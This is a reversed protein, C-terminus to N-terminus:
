ASKKDCRLHIETSLTNVETLSDSKVSSLQDNYKNLKAQSLHLHCTCLPCFFQSTSIKKSPYLDLSSIGIHFYTGLFFVPNLYTSSKERGSYNNYHIFNMNHSVSITKLIASIWISAPTPISVQAFSLSSSSGIKSILM